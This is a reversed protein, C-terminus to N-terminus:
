KTKDKGLVYLYFIELVGLTNVVLLLVFWKKSDAKAAKWLAM